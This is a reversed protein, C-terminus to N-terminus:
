RSKALLEGTAVPDTGPTPAKPPDTQMFGPLLFTAPSVSGTANIGSCGAGLLAFAPLIAM